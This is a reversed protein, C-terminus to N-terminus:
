WSPNNKSAAKVIWAVLALVILVLVGPHAQAFALVVALIRPGIFGAVALAGILILTWV